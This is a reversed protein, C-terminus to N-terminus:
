YGTGSLGESMKQASIGDKNRKVMKLMHHYEWRTKRRIDFIIGTRPSGNEKWLKHWFMAKTKYESIFENWGPIHKRQRNPKSSPICSSAEICALV